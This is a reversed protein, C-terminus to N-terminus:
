NEVLFDYVERSGAEQPNFITDRSAQMGGQSRMIKINHEDNVLLLAILYSTQEKFVCVFRTM